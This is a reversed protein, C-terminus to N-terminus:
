GSQRLGSYYLYTAYQALAEDLWPSLVQDNGVV